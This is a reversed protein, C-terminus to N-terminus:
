DTKILKEVLEYVTSGNRELILRDENNHEIEKAIQIAQKIKPLTFDRKKTGKDYDPIYKKLEKLCKKGTLLGKPKKELFHLLLHFEFCPNSIALHNKGPKEDRWKFLEDFAKKPNNDVDLVLWVEDAGKYQPRGKAKLISRPDTKKGCKFIKAFSSDNNMLTKIIEFYEPETKEGETVILYTKKSKKFGQGRDSGV